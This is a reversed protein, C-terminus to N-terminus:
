ATRKLFRDARVEAPAVGLQQMMGLQDWNNWGHRLKGNAIELITMGSVKMPRGTPPFGLGNGQHSGAASFRVVVKDAEAVIDEITIQLDPFAQLM